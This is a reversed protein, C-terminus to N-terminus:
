PALYFIMRTGTSATAGTNFLSFARAGNAVPVSDQDLKGAPAQSLSSAVQPVRHQDLVLTPVTGVTNQMVASVAFRPILLFPSVSFPPITGVNVTRRAPDTVGIGSRAGVGVSVTLDVTPQTAGPVTTPPYLYYVEIGYAVLALTTGNIADVEVVPDDPGCNEGSGWRVQFALDSLDDTPQFGGAPPAVGLTVEITQAGMDNERYYVPLCWEFVREAAVRPVAPKKAGTHYTRGPGVICAPGPGPRPPPARGARNM